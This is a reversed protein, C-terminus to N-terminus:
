EGNVEANEKPSVDLIGQLVEVGWKGMETGEDMAEINNRIVQYISPSGTADVSEATTAEANESLFWDMAGLRNVARDRKKKIEDWKWEQREKKMLDECEIIQIQMRGKEAEIEIERKM